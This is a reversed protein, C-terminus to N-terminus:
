PWVALLHLPLIRLGISKVVTCVQKQTFFCSLYTYTRERKSVKERLVFYSAYNPMAKIVDLFHLYM